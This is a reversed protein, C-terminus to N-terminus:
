LLSCLSGLTRVELICCLAYNKKVDQEANDSLKKM